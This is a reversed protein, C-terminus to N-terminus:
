SITGAISGVQDLLKAAHAVMTRVVDVKYRAAPVFVTGTNGEGTTFYVITGLVPNGPNTFDYQDPQQSTVTYTTQAM